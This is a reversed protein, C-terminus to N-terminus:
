CTTRGRTNDRIDRTRVPRRPAERAGITRERVATPLHPAHATCFRPAQGCVTDAVQAKNALHKIEPNAATPTLGLHAAHLDTGGLDSGEPHGKRLFSAGRSRTAHLRGDGVGVYVDLGSTELNTM